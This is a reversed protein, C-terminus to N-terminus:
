EQPLIIKDPHYIKTKTFNLKDCSLVAISNPSGNEAFAFIDSIENKPIFIGANSYFANFANKFNDSYFYVGNEDEFQAKLIGPHLTIVKIEMFYCDAQTLLELAYMSNIENENDTADVQPTIQNKNVCGTLYAFFLILLLSLITKKM